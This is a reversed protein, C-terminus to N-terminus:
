PLPREPVSSPRRLWRCLGALLALNLLMGAAIVVAALLPRGGEIRPLTWLSWPWGLMIAFVAALAEDSFAILGLRGACALLYLM